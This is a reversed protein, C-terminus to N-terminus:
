SMRSHELENNIRTRLSEAEQRAQQAYLDPDRSAYIVSRSASIILNHGRADVGFRVSKELAGQQAGIGPLLIPLDPCLDRIRRLEDPYTAGVVLGLNNKTNWSQTHLAIWEYLPRTDGGFEPTALLDQFERAGPNSTRCLVFVGRDTYSIFPEITDRGGYANVTVADFGWVEFAAKAYLAHVDGRKADGIIPIHSPIAELTKELAVLGSTGLAEYFGLNPKYACVLDSTAEIIHKNFLAVDQIPMVEPAPDLGICLLSQNLEVAKNLKTTFTEM